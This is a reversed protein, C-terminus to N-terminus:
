APVGDSRGSGVGGLATAARRITAGGLVEDGAYLVVAQGPAAARAPISLRVVLKRDVPEDVTCPIRAGRHRIRAEVAEGPEPRRIWHAGSAEIESHELRESPGVVVRRLEPDVRLVYLPQAAAIGIGRRQGVTFRHYADHRGLVRGAEDVVDGACEQGGPGPQGDATHHQVFRAHDDDPIFCVEMSEPKQATALGLRTAHARVEPKTMAGLPFLSQRLAEARIPYLFYSQDKDLDVATFLRGDRARAYHGTALADAGLARARALLIDFKLIGNCRVCPNPTGGALYTAAFDDMVAKRFAAQLDLVYFPIGLASAVSRADLADDLGCCHGPAASSQGPGAPQDHLKMHVGIVEHGAEVLLGAAVSSDVGGSMATVIRM